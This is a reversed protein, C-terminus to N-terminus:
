RITHRRKDRRSCFEHGVSVALDENADLVLIQDNGNVQSADKNLKAQLTIQQSDASLRITTDSSEAAQSSADSASSVRLSNTEPAPHVVDLQSSTLPAENAIQPTVDDHVEALLDDVGAGGALMIRTELSEVGM